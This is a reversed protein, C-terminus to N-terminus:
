AGEFRPHFTLEVSTGVTGGSVNFVVANDGPALSWLYASPWNLAYSLNQGAPGRVTPQLTTITIQEGAALGYTLTFEYGTTINTATVASAPGTITWVPWADVDGPNNLSTEGLALSDSVQPFPSFFDVGPVYSHVTTIPNIDRWYGDPCFLTIADKSWTHGQGGEGEMGGEYFAEIERADDPAGAVAVRLIGAQGRHATMTFAKKIQRRRQKYQQYTEGFVYLPWTIRGPKARVSRVSEGGRPLPDTVIEYTTADWGGPGPPTFWGMDPSNDSLQWTVGTPDTWTATMTGVDEIVLAV